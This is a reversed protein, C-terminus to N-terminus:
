SQTPFMKRVWNFVKFAFIAAEYTLFIGFIALLTDVPVFTSLPAVYSGVSAVANTIGTPLSADALLRLPATIVFIAGYVLYLFFATIM